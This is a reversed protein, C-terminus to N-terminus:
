LALNNMDVLAATTLPNLAAEEGGCYYIRRFSTKKAWIGESSLNPICLLVLSLIKASWMPDVFMMVLSAAREPKVFIKAFLIM